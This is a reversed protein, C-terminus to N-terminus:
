VLNLILRTGQKKNQEDEWEKDLEWGSKYDSRDHLFKCSDGFGCTGTEKYDKCVDPQYDWRTTARLYVPARIPGKKNAASMQASDRSEVYKTYYNQGRYIKDDKQGKLNENIMRSKEFIARADRDHETETELTATAGQDNPGESEQTKKSEYTFLKKLKEAKEDDSDNAEEEIPKNKKKGSHTTGALMYHKKNREKRIVCSEEDDSDDEDSSEKQRKRVGGGRRTSKKFFMCPADNEAM